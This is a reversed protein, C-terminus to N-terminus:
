IWDINGKARERIAIVLFAIAGVISTLTGISGLFLGTMRMVYYTVLLFVAGFTISAPILFRLDPGVAKRAIHPVLFGVFGVSGVFSVAVGTLVMCLIIVAYRTRSTRVGMSKAESEDFALLNIKFRLLAIVVIGILLPVAMAAFVTFNTIRDFSGGVISTIAEAQESSGYRILYTRIVTVVGAILATFVQGAIILSVKSLKGRGAVHAILLVLAVVVLCGILSFLARGTSAFLYTPLDMAAVQAQAEDHTIMRVAGSQEPVMFLLTYVVAGLSAGSMVGLTSPAALANRLATQFVCGNLALAAGVLPVALTQWFIISVGSTVAGGTLWNVIGSINGQIQAVILAPTIAPKGSGFLATPLILVLAFAVVLIVASAVIVKVRRDLSHKADMQATYVSVENRHGFLSKSYGYAVGPDDVAASSPNFVSPAEDGRARHPQGTAAGSVAREGPASADQGPVASDSPQYVFPSAGPRQRRERAM